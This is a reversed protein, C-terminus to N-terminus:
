KQKSKHEKYCSTLDSQVLICIGQALCLQTQLDFLRLVIIYQGLLEKLHTEQHEQLSLLPSYFKITKREQKEKM